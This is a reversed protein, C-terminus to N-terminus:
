AAAARQEVVRAAAVIYARRCSNLVFGCVKSLFRQVFGWAREEVGRRQNKELPEVM